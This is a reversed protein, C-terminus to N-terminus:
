DVVHVTAEFVIGDFDVFAFIRDYQFPITEPGTCGALIHVM